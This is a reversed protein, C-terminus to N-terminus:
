FEANNPMSKFGQYFPIPNVMTIFVMNVCNTYVHLVLIFDMAKDNCMFTINKLIQM